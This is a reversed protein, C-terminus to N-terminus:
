SCPQPLPYQTYVELYLDVAKDDDNDGEALSALNKYASYKFVLGPHNPQGDTIESDDVQKFMVYYFYTHM